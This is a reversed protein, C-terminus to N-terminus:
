HGKTIIRYGLGLGEYANMQKRDGYNKEKGSHRTFAIMCSIPKPTQSRENPRICKANM